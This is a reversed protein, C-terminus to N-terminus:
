TPQFVVATSNQRSVFCFQEQKLGGRSGWLGVTVMYGAM